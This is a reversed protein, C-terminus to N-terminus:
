AKSLIQKYIEVLRKTSETESYKEIKSYNNIINEKLQKYIRPNEQLKLIAEAWKKPDFSKVFVAMGSPIIERTTEYDYVISPLGGALAQIYTIGFTEFDSPAVFIHHIKILELLEHWKMWGTFTIVHELGLKKVRQELLLRDTGEGSITLMCRDKLYSMMEILINIRKEGALRSFVLLKAPKRPIEKHLKFFHNTVPPYLVFVNKQLRKQIIDAYRQSPATLYDSKKLLHYQYKDICKNYTGGEHVFLSLPFRDIKFRAGEGHFTTLVPITHKHAFDIVHNSVFLQEQVHIIDPRFELIEKKANEFLMPAFSFNNVYKGLRLSKNIIVHSPPIVKAFLLANQDSLLKVETNLKILNDIWTITCTQSGGAFPAMSDFVFLIKM